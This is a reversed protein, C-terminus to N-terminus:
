PIARAHGNFFGPPGFQFPTPGVGNAWPAPFPEAIMDLVACQQDHYNNIVGIQDDLTLTPESITNYAPWTPLGPGNPNGTKAFNTWYDTMQGSLVQEAPTLVHGTGAVDEDWILEDELLHGARFQAYLPDNEYVHTYLYRWVPAKAAVVNALRRAPCGRTADTEMTLYDWLLSDYASPPYLSRAQAAFNM